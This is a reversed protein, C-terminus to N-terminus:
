YEERLVEEGTAKRVIITDGDNNWIPNGYGWYLDAETDTGSGTHLTVQAEADLTFGEPVTYTKGTADEVTWGGMELARNKTNEFVIYEDNLNSREDGAADAHVTAVRLPGTM